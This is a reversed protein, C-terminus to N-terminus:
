TLLYRYPDPSLDTLSAKQGPKGKKLPIKQPYATAKIEM